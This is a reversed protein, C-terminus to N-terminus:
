VLFDYQMCIHLISRLSDTSLEQTFQVCKPIYPDLRPLVWLLQVENNNLKSVVHHPVNMAQSLFLGDSLMYGDLVDVDNDHDHWRDFSRSTTGMILFYERRNKINWTRYLLTLCTTPCPLGFNRWNHSAEKKEWNWNQSYKGEFKKHQCTHCNNIYVLYRKPTSTGRSEMSIPRFHLLIYLVYRWARYAILRLSPRSIHLGTCWWIWVSSHCTGCLAILVCDAWEQKTEGHRSYHNYGFIIAWM